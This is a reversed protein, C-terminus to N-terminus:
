NELDYILDDLTKDYYTDNVINQKWKFLSEDWSYNDGPKKIPAEWDYDENLVWSRFPPIPNYFKNKESVYIWGPAPYNNEHEIKIWEGSIQNKLDEPIENCVIINDVKNHRVIAYYM